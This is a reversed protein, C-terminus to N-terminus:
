SIATCLYTELAISLNREFSIGRIGYSVNLKGVAPDEQPESMVAVGAFSAYADKMALFGKSKVDVSADLNNRIFEATVCELNREYDQEYREIEYWKGLYQPIFLFYDCWEFENRMLVIPNWSMYKEVTKGGPM